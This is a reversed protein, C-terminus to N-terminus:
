RPPRGASAASLLSKAEPDDPQFRVVVRLYEAAPRYLGRQIALKAADTRLRYPKEDDQSVRGSQLLADGAERERGMELYLSALGSYLWNKLKKGVGADAKVGELYAKEAKDFLFRRYYANGLRYKGLARSGGGQAMRDYYPAAKEPEGREAEIDGALEWLAPDSLRTEFQQAVRSALNLPTNRNAAALRRARMLHTRALNYLLFNRESAPAKTLAEQIVTASGSYAQADGLAPEILETIDSAPAKELALLLDGRAAAVDGGTVGDVARRLAKETAPDPRPQGSLGAQAASAGVLCLTAFLALKMPKM